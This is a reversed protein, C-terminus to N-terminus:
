KDEDKKKTDASAQLLNGSNNKNNTAKGDAKKDNKKPVVLLSANDADEPKDASEAQEAPAQPIELDDPIEMELDDVLEQQAVYTDLKEEHIDQTELNFEQVQERIDIENGVDIAGKAQEASSKAALAASAFGVAGFAWMWPGGSMLRAGALGASIGNVTHSVSEVKCMTKTSEDFGEAFNTVGEVDAMTEQSEDYVDQYEAMEGSLDSVTATTEEQTKTIGASLQEMQPTLQKMLGKENKTLQAGSEARDKLAAYQAKYLDFKTKDGDITEAGETNAEEAEASLSTVNEEADDMDDRADQLSIQGEPLEGEALKNAAEIQEKNPKEVLYKAETAAALLVTAIDGLNKTAKTKAKNAAEEATKQAAKRGETVTGGLKTTTQNASTIANANAIAEKGAKTLTQEGLGSGVVGEVLKGSFSGVADGGINVGIKGMLGGAMDAAASIGGVAAGASMVVTAGTSIASDAKGDFGTADKARQEGQAKAFDFDEDSIEYNTTDQGTYKIIEPHASLLERKTDISTNPDNYIKLAEATTIGDIPM